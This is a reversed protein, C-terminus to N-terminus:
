VSAQAMAARAIEVMSMGARAVNAVVATPKPPPASPTESLARNIAAAYDGAAPTEIMEVLSPAVVPATSTRRQKGKKEAEDRLMAAASYANASDRAENQARISKRDIFYISKGALTEEKRMLQAPCENRGMSVGCQGVAGATGLRKAQWEGIKFLCSAYPPRHGVVDCNDLNYANSGGASASLPHITTNIENTM